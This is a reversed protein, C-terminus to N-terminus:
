MGAPRSAPSPAPAPPPPKAAAPAPPAPAAAAAPPAPAPAPEPGAQEVPTEPVPAPGSTEPEGPAPEGAEPEEPETYGAEGPLADANSPGSNTIKPMEREKGCMPCVALDYAIAQCGCSGCTWDGNRQPRGKMSALHDAEVARGAGDGLRREEPSPGEDLSAEGCCPVRPAAPRREEPSPGEDLRGPSACSSQRTGPDGNRQPRGKMSAGAGRNRGPMPLTDGNRQPRGKM